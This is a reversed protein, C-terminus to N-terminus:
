LIWRVSRVRYRKYCDSSKGADSAVGKRGRKEGAGGCCRDALWMRVEVESGVVCWGKRCVVGLKLAVM